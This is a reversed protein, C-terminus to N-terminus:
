NFTTDPNSGLDSGLIWMREVAGACCGLLGEIKGSIVSKLYETEQSGKMCMCM